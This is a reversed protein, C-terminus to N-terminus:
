RIIVLIYVFCSFYFLSGLDFHCIPHNWPHFLVHFFPYNFLLESFLASIIISPGLSFLLVSTWYSALNILHLGHGFSCALLIILLHVLLCTLIHFGRLLKSSCHKIMAQVTMGIFPHIFVLTSSSLMGLFAVHLGHSYSYFSGIQGIAPCVIIRRTDATFFSLSPFTIFALPLTLSRSSRICQACKRSFLVMQFTCFSKSSAGQTFPVITLLGSLRQHM